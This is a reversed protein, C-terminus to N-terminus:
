MTAPPAVWARWGRLMRKYWSLKNPATRGNSTGSPRPENSDPAGIIKWKTWDVARSSYALLDSEKEWCQAWIGLDNENITDTPIVMQMKDLAVAVYSFRLAKEPYEVASTEKIYQLITPENGSWMTWLKTSAHTEPIWIKEAARIREKDAEIVCYWQDDDDEWDGPQDVVYFGHGIQSFAASKLDLAKDRYLRGNKNIWKAEDESVTRYGLLRRENGHVSSFLFSLALLTSCVSQSSFM